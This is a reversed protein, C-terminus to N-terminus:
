ALIVPNKTVTGSIKRKVDDKDANFGIQSLVNLIYDPDKNEAISIAKDGRSADLSLNKIYAFKMDPNICLALVSNIFKRYHNYSLSSKFKDYLEMTAKAAVSDYDSVKKCVSLVQKVYPEINDIDACDDIKLFVVQTGSVRNYYSNFSSGDTGLFYNSIKARDNVVKQDLAYVMSLVNRLTQARVNPDKTNDSIMKQADYALQRVEEATVIEKGRSTRVELTQKSNIASWNKLKSSIQKFLSTIEGQGRVANKCQTQSVNDPFLVTGTFSGNHDKDKLFKSFDELARTSAASVELTRTEVSSIIKLLEDKPMDKLYQLLIPDFEASEAYELFANVDEEDYQTKKYISFRAAFAPDLPQADAMNDGLNCAAFIKVRSPDFNVGFIRNDSCADFVVSMTSPNMVRNIEDFFIVVDQGTAYAKKFQEAVTAKPAKTTVKQPLAHQTLEQDLEERLDDPMSVDKGLIMRNISIQIPFGLLDTRDQEALNVEVFLAGRDKVAKKVRSTKGVSSPAILMTPTGSEMGDDVIDRMKDKSEPKTSWGAQQFGDSGIFDKAATEGILGAIYKMSYTKTSENAYLYDSVMEWTRYNPFSSSTLALLDQDEEYKAMVEDQSYARTISGDIYERILPHINDGNHKNSKSEAWSQWGPFADEPYIFMSEFRDYFASDDASKTLFIDDDSGSSNTAAIFRAYKMPYGMFAKDSLIKTLAQRVSAEGRTIEDFFLVPVKSGEVFKPLVQLELNLAEEKDEDSNSKRLEAIKAKVKNVAVRCYDVYADTCMVMQDMPCNFSEISDGLDVAESLGELDLRSIFATRIDVMRMNHKQCLAKVVSSKAVATGGVLLPTRNTTYSGSFYSELRAVYPAESERGMRTHVSSVLDDLSLAERLPYVPVTSTAQADGEVPNSDAEPNYIGVWSPMTPKYDGTCKLILEASTVDESVYGTLYPYLAKGNEVSIVSAVKSYDVEYVNCTWYQRGLKIHSVIDNIPAKIVIKGLPYVLYADWVKKVPVPVEKANDFWSFDVLVDETKYVGKSKRILPAKDLFPLINNLNYMTIM